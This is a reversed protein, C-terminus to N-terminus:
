AGRPLGLVRQALVNRMIQSTGGAITNMRSDLLLHGWTSGTDDLAMADPGLVRVALEAIEQHLHSAEVKGISLLHGIDRGEEIATAVQRAAPVLLRVRVTLRVLTRRIEDDEMLQRSAIEGALRDVVHDLHIGVRVTAFREFELITMAVDWGRDLPEVLSSKAVVVDDFFVENFTSGGTMDRLPSVAVGAATMDVILMSLGEHRRAGESTRVLAMCWRADNGHTNWTKHGSVTWTDGCDVARCTIAALDSGAGPESFGQCWIEQATVMPALYRERQDATGHRLLTPGLQFLALENLVMPAGVTALEEEYILQETPGADRGGYRQPWAPVAWGGGVLQDHWQRRTMGPEFHDAVWSRLEARFADARRSTTETRDDSAVM